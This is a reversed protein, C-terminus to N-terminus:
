DEDVAKEGSPAVEQEVHLSKDRVDTLLAERKVIDKLLDLLASVVLAGDDGDGRDGGDGDDGYDGTDLLGNKEKM